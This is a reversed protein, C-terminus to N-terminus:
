SQRARLPATSSSSIMRAHELVKRALNKRDGITRMLTRTLAVNVSLGATENADTEDAVLGDILGEYHAAIASLGATVGLEDMIKRTPGKVAQGNIVPSVCIVPALTRAVAARLAPIALIPDVSLYPNSPCIVVAELAASSLAEEIGETPKATAAGEFRISRIHPECRREVFYRQFPLVGEVTDIATRVADDSMPVLSARIGLVRAMDTIFDSLPKGSRLWNTRLVHIALDRDGLNFWNEGGMETLAAMFQWTEGARGWGRKLDSLGALTYLITDLDPSVHLGLHEFDDGTNVVVM